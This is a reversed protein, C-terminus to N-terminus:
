EIAKLRKACDRLLTNVEVTKRDVLDNAEDGLERPLSDLLSRAKQFKDRATRVNAKEAASRGVFSSRYLEVAERFAECAEKYAPYRSLVSDGGAAPRPESPTPEDPRAEPEPRPAPEPTRGAFQRRRFPM